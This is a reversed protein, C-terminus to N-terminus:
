PTSVNTLFFCFPPSLQVSLYRIALFKRPSDNERESTQQVRVEREDITEAALRQHQLTSMRHLRAEREKATEAAVRDRMQRLRAEREEATEAAIRDRMHRLRGERQQVIEEAHCENQRLSM